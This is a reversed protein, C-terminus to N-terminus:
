EKGAIRLITDQNSLTAFVVQPLLSRKATVHFEDSAAL